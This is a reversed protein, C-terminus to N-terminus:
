RGGYVSSGYGAQANKASHHTTPPALSKLMGSIGIVALLAAGIYALFEKRDMETELLQQLPKLNVEEGRMTQHLSNSNLILVLTHSDLTAGLFFVLLHQDKKKTIGRLTSSRNGPHSGPTRVM